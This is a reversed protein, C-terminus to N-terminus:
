NKERNKIERLFGDFEFGMLWGIFFLFFGIGLKGFVEGFLMGTLLEGLLLATGLGLLWCMATRKSRKGKPLPQGDTGFVEDVKVEEINNENKM